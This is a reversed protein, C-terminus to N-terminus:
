YIGIPIVANVFPNEHINTSLTSLVASLDKYKDLLLVIASSVVITAASTGSFGGGNSLLVPVPASYKIRVPCPYQLQTWTCYPDNNQVLGNVSIVECMQSLLNPWLASDNGVAAVVLCENQTAYACVRTLVDIHSDAWPFDISVSCVQVRKEIAWILACLITLPFFNEGSRIKARYLSCSVIQKSVDEVFTGHPTGDDSIDNGAFIFDNDTQIDNFGTDIIALKLSTEVIKTLGLWDAINIAESRVPESLLSFDNVSFTTEYTLKFGFIPFLLENGENRFGIEPFASDAILTLDDHYFQGFEVGTFEYSLNDVMAKTGVALLLM